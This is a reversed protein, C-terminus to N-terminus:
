RAVGGSVMGRGWWWVVGWGVVVGPGGWWAMRGGHCPMVWCVVDEGCKTGVQWAEGGTKGCERGHWMRVAM